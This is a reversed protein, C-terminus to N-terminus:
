FRKRFDNALESVLNKGPKRLVAGEADYRVGRGDDDSVGLGDGDAYWNGYWNLYARFLGNEGKYTFPYESTHSIDGNQVDEALRYVLGADKHPQLFLQSFNIVRGEGTSIGRASLDKLLTEAQLKNVNPQGTINVGFNIYVDGFPNKNGNQEYLKLLQQGTILPIQPLLTAIAVGMYTSSGLLNDEEDKTFKYLKRATDKVWEDGMESQNDRLFRAVRGPYEPYFDSAKLTSAIGKEKEVKEVDKVQM